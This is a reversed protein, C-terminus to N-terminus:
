KRKTVDCRWIDIGKTFFEHNGYYKGGVLFICLGETVHPLQKKLESSKSKTGDNNTCDLEDHNWQVRKENKADGKGKEVEHDESSWVKEGLSPQLPHRNREPFQSEDNSSCYSVNTFSIVDNEGFDDVSGSSCRKDKRNKNAQLYLSDTSLSWQRCRPEFPRPDEKYQFEPSSHPRLEEVIDSQHVDGRSNQKPTVLQPPLLPLSFASLTVVAPASRAPPSVGGHPTILSWSLAESVM